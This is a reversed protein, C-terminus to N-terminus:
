VLDFLKRESANLVQYGGLASALHPRDRAVFRSQVLALAEPDDVFVTKIALGGLLDGISQMGVRRVPNPGLLKASYASPLGSIADLLEFSIDRQERCKRLAM